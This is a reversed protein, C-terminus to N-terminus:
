NKHLLKRKLERIELRIEYLREPAAKRERAEALLQKYKSSDKYHPIEIVNKETENFYELEHDYIFM